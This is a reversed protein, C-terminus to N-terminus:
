GQIENMKNRFELPTCKEVAKFTRIFTNYNEYGVHDAIMTVNMDTKVLFVKALEMKEQVIMEKLSLGTRKRFLKTLSEPSRRVYDAIDGVTVPERINEKIYKIVIDIVDESGGSKEALMGSMYLVMDRFRDVNRYSMMYTVYDWPERFIEDSSINCEILHRLLTRNFAQHFPVMFNMNIHEKNKDLIGCVSKGFQSYEHMALMNRWLRAEYEFSYEEAACATKNTEWIVGEGKAMYLAEFKQLSRWAERLENRNAKKGFCLMSELKLVRDCVKKATNVNDYLLRLKEMGFNGDGLFLIGAFRADNEIMLACKGGFGQFHENLINEMIFSRIPTELQKSRASRKCSVVFPMMETDEGSMGYYAMMDALFAEDASESRLWSLVGRKLVEEERMQFFAGKKLLVEKKEQMRYEYIANRLTQELEEESVPQLLYEFGHLSIAEKMYASDAHSTLFIIKTDPFYENVWKSLSLGDEVPMEIDCLMIEFPYGCFKNRAMKASYAVDLGDIGLRDGDIQRCLMELVIEQDDVALIRM